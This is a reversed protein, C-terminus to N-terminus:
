GTSHATCLRKHEPYHALQCEKSCYIVAKCRGCQKFKVQGTSQDLKSLECTPYACRIFERSLQMNMRDYLALALKPVGTEEALCSKVFFYVFPCECASGADPNELCLHLWIWALLYHGLRTSVFNDNQGSAREYILKLAVTTHAKSIAKSVELCEAFYGDRHEATSEFDGLFLSYHYMSRLMDAQVGAVGHIVALGLPNGCFSSLIYARIKQSGNEEGVGSHNVDSSLHAPDFFARIDAIVEEASPVHYGTDTRILPRRHMVFMRYLNLITESLEIQWVSQLMRIFEHDQALSSYIDHLFNDFFCVHFLELVKADLRIQYRTDEISRVGVKRVYRDIDAKVWAYVSPKDTSDIDDLLQLRYPATFIIDFGKEWYYVEVVKGLKWESGTQLEHLFEVEDGVAFRLPPLEAVSARHRLYLSKCSLLNTHDPARLCYEYALKSYKHAAPYNRYEQFITAMEYCCECRIHICIGSLAPHDLIELSYKFLKLSYYELFSSNNQHNLYFRHGDSCSIFLLYLTYFNTPNLLLAEELKETALKNIENINIVNEDSIAIESPLSLESSIHNRINAAVGILIAEDISNMNDGFQIHCCPCKFMCNLSLALETNEKRFCSQCFIHDCRGFARRSSSMLIDSEVRCKMCKECPISINNSNSMEIDLKLSM